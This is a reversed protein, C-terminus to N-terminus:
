NIPDDVPGYYPTGTVVVTTGNDRGDHRGFRGDHGFRGHGRFPAFRAHQRIAPRAVARRPFARAPAMFRGGSVVAGRGSFGGGARASAEVPIFAAGLALIAILSAVRTRM